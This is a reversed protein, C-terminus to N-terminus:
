GTSEGSRTPTGPTGPTGSCESPWAWHRFGAGAVGCRTCTDERTARLAERYRRYLRPYWDSGPPNLPARYDERATM